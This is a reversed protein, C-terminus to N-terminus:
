NFKNLTSSTLNLRDSSNNSSYILIDKKDMIQDCDDCILGTLDGTQHARSYKQYLEGDYIEELSNEVLNGIYLEGNTDFCCLKVFGNADVQLPGAFPRGCTRVVKESQRYTYLNAWNHPKWIELVDVKGSYTDVINKIDKEDIEEMVCNLFIQIDKTKLYEINNILNDLSGGTLEKYKDSNLTHLSIRMIDLYEEEFKDRDIISGNTLVITTYGMSKAFKFKHYIDKDLFPEGLGSITIKNIQPAQQKIKLVLKEFIDNSMIEKKRYFLETPYPCFNCRYNCASSNEIRVEETILYNKDNINM